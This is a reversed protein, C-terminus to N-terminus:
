VEFNTLGKEVRKRQSQVKHKQKRKINHFCKQHDILFTLNIYAAESFVRCEFEISFM